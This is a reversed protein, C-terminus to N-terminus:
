LLVIFQLFSQQVILSPFREEAKTSQVRTLTSISFRNWSIASTELSAVNTTHDLKTWVLGVDEFSEM